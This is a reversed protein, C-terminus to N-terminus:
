QEFIVKDELVLLKAKAGFILARNDDIHGAPFNFCVPYDYEEVADKIVEYVQKGFPIESDKISTMGGVILGKLGSFKNAKKLTWMMRDISYVPEGVDEIFLIKGNTKISSNTGILSAIISLNGGVLDADAHGIRNLKSGDIAYNNPQGNLVNILSQLSEKTNEKFNLPATGHVSKVGYVAQIHNHFVTVDSYGIIVKSNLNRFDLSDIIRVSGYGGRSCLIYDVSPDDIANQFDELREEDTGSFYDSQNGANAAVEVLFGNGELYSTAFDLHEKAIAKAPSVIKIKKMSGILSGLM